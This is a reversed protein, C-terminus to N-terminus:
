FVRLVAALILVFAAATALAVVIAQVLRDSDDDM